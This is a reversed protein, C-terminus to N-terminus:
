VRAPGLVTGDRAVQRLWVGDADAWIVLYRGGLSGAGYGAALTPVGAGIPGLISGYGDLPACSASVRTGFVQTAGFRDDSWVAYHDVGAGAVAIVRQNGGAPSPMPAGLGSEALLQGLVALAVQFGPAM